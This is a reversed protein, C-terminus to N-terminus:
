KQTIKIYNKKETKNKRRNIESYKKATNLKKTSIKAKTAEFAAYRKMKSQNEM